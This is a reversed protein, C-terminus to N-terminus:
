KLGFLPRLIKTRRILEYSAFCGTFSFVIITLLKVFVNLALPLIILSGLYLFIMHLIYVPYAGKSLYTLIKGPKNLYKYAFALIAYIWIISELAMLYGPAKLNFVYLRMGYLFLAILLNVFRYKYITKWFIDGVMVFCYGFFFSLFGLAFGHWTMAYLEYPNPKILITELMFPGAILLLGFPNGLVKSLMKKLSNKANKQLVSFLPSLVLVYIFINMLFWLHGRGPMYRFDQLYFKQWIFIHIPVIAVAGFILPVLIRRTREWLLEKINRKRMAFFVGMGSVFFLLPIRWINLMTMPKWLGEIPEPSQIFGIFMGWPQFVIAIHYILLLGIAIVRLWDIDYRRYQTEM